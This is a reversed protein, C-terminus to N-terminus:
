KQLALSKCFYFTDLVISVIRGCDGM